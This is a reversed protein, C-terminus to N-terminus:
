FIKRKIIKFLFSLFFISKVLDSNQTKKFLLKRKEIKAQIGSKQARREKIKAELVKIRRNLEIKQNQNVMLEKMLNKIADTDTILKELKKNNQPNEWGEGAEFIDEFKMMKIKLHHIRDNLEQEKVQLEKTHKEQKLDNENKILSQKQQEKSEMVSLIHEDGKM